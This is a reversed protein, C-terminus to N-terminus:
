VLKPYRAAFAKTVAAPVASVPVVEETVEVEGKTSLVLEVKSGDKKLLHVEFHDTGRRCKALKSGPYAKQAADTIATPCAPENAVATGSLSVLAGALLARAITHRM